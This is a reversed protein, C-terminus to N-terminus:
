RKVIFGNEKNDSLWLMHGEEKILYVTYSRDLETNIGSIFKLTLTFSDGLRVQVPIGGFEVVQEEEPALIAFTLTGDDNYERSIQDTTANYVLNRSALYAGYDTYNLVADGSFDLTATSNVTTKKYIACTGQTSTANFYSGSKQVYYSNRTGKYYLSAAGNSISLTWSTQSTSLQLYRNNNSTPVYLYRSSGDWLVVTSNSLSKVYLIQVASGSLLRVYGDDGLSFGTDKATYALGSTGGSGTMAATPSTSDLIIVEDGASLDSVSTVLQYVTEEATVGEVEEASAMNVSFQYIQGSAFEVTSKLAITRKLGTGDSLFATVTLSCGEMSGVPACAFWVPDGGLVDIGETNLMLSSSAEKESTSGDSFNYYWEGAFPKDESVLQVAKVTVGDSVPLNKLTLRGYATIHSFTVDVNEPISSYEESEAVIIQADEDLSATTPTQSGLIRVSVAGREQSPWVFASAPSVVYFTYPSETDIGDFTADFSAWEGTEDELNVGAAVGSEYNLSIEVQRDNASWFTPYVTRGQSDTMADGFVTKTSAQRANFHVNVPGAYESEPAQIEKQACGALCFVIAAAFLDLILRKM